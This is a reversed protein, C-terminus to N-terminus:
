PQYAEAEERTLFFHIGHTCEERRDPNFHDATVTAGPAYRLKSRSATPSVGEGEVVEVRSARCKRSAFASTRQADAPILLKIVTYTGDDRRVKKYGFLTGEPPTILPPLIAESLDTGRLNTRNLDAGCFNAKSLSAGGLDAESLDAGGLDAGRLDAGVLNARYLDAGRLNAGRLDARSLDAGCLDTESFNTGRLDAKYLYAGRLYVGSLDAGVLSDGPVERLLVYYINEIRM